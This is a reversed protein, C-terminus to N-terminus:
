RDHDDDVLSKVDSVVKYEDDVFEWTIVGRTSYGESYTGVLVAFGNVRRDLVEVGHGGVRGIIKKLRQDYVLWPCGAGQGCMYENLVFKEPIGDDNLDFAITRLPGSGDDDAFFMRVSPDIETDIKASGDVVQPYRAYATGAILLLLTSVMRYRNM